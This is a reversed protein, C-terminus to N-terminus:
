GARRGWRLLRDEEGDAGVVAPDGAVDGDHAVAGALAPHAAAAGEADDGGGARGLPGAVVVANPDRARGDEHAPDRGEARRDV